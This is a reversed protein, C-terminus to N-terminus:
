PVSSITEEVIEALAAATASWRPAADMLSKV